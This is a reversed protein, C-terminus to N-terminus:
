WGMQLHPLCGLNYEITCDLCLLSPQATSHNHGTSPPQVSKNSKPRTCSTCIIENFKVVVGGCWWYWWVVVGGGGIGGGGIGGVGGGVGVVSSKSSLGFRRSKAPRTSSITM